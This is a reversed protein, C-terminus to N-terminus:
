EILAGAVQYYKMAINDDYPSAWAALADDHETSQTIGTTMLYHLVHILAHIVQTYYMMNYCVGSAYYRWEEEPVIVAKGSKYTVIQNVTMDKNFRVNINRSPDPIMTKM